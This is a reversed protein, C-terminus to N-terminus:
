FAKCFYVATQCIKQNELSWENYYNTTEISSGNGLHRPWKDEVHLRLRGMLGIQGLRSLLQGLLKRKLVAKNM